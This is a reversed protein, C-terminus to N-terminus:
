QLLVFLLFFVICTYLIFLVLYLLVIHFVYVVDCLTLTIVNLKDLQFIHRLCNKTNNYLFKARRSILLESLLQIRFYKNDLVM